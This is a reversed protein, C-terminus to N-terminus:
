ALGRKRERFARFESFRSVGDMDKLTKRPGMAARAWSLFGRETLYGDFLGWLVLGKNNRCNVSVYGLSFPSDMLHGDFLLRKSM